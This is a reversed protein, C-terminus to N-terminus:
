DSIKWPQFFSCTSAINQVSTVILLYMYQVVHVSGQIYTSEDLAEDNAGHLYCKTYLCLDEFWLGQSQGTLTEVCSFTIRESTGRGKVVLVFVSFSEVYVIFSSSVKPATLQL